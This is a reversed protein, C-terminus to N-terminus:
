ELAKIVLNVGLGLYTQKRRDTLLHCIFGLWARTINAIPHVIPTEAMIDLYLVDFSIYHFWGRCRVLGDNDYLVDIPPLKGVGSVHSIHQSGISVHSYLYHPYHHNYINALKVKFHDNRRCSSQEACHRKDLSRRQFPATSDMWRSTWIEPTAQLCSALSCLCTVLCTVWNEASNFMNYGATPATRGKLTHKWSCNDVKNINRDESFHICHQLEQLLLTPGFVNSCHAEAPSPNGCM